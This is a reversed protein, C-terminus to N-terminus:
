NDLNSKPFFFLRRKLKKFPNIQHGALCGAFVAKKEKITPMITIEITDRVILPFKACHILNNTDLIVIPNRGKVSYIKQEKDFDKYLDLAGHDKSFNGKYIMIKLCKHPFGDYHLEMEKKSNPHSRPLYRWLRINVIKYNCRFYSRIINDFKKDNKLFNDTNNTLHQPLDYIFQRSDNIYSLLKEDNVYSSYNNDYVYDEYHAYIKRKNEKQLESNLFNFLQFPFESIKLIRKYFGNKKFFSIVQNNQPRSKFNFLYILNAINLYILHLINSFNPKYFIDTIYPNRAHFPYLLFYKKYIKYKLFFKFSKLFSLNFM